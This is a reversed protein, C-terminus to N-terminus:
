LPGWGDGGAEIHEKWDLMFGEPRERKDGLALVEVTSAAPGPYARMLKVCGGCLGGDRHPLTCIRCRPVEIPLVPHWYDTVGPTTTPIHADRDAPDREKTSAVALFAARLSNRANPRDSALDADRQARTLSRTWATLPYRLPPVQRAARSSM